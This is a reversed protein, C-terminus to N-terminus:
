DFDYTCLWLSTFEYVNESHLHFSHSTHTPVLGSKYHLGFEQQWIRVKEQKEICTYTQVIDWKM